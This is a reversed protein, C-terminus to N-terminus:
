ADRLVLDQRSAVVDLQLGIQHQQRQLHPDRIDAGEHDAGFPPIGRQHVLANEVLRHLVVVHGVILLAVAVFVSCFISMKWM